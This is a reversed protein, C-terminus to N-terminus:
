EGDAELEKIRKAYKDRTANSEDLWVGYDDIMKGYSKLLASKAAVQKRLDAIVAEPDGAKQPSTWAVEWHEKPLSHFTSIELMRVECAYKYGNHEFVMHTNYFGRKNMYEMLERISCLGTADKVDLAAVIEKENDM